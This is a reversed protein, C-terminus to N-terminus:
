LRCSSTQSVPCQAGSASAVSMPAAASVMWGRRKETLGKAFCLIAGAGELTGLSTIEKHFGYEGFELAYYVFFGAACLLGFTRLRRLFLEENGVRFAIAFYAVLLLSGYLQRIVYSRANGHAFGVVTSVVSVLAFAKVSAPVRLLSRIGIRIVAALTIILLGTAWYYMQGGFDRWSWDYRASSPFFVNCAILFGVGASPAEQPQFWVRVALAGALVMMLFAMSGTLAALPVLSLLGTWFALALLGVKAPKRPGAHIISDAASM